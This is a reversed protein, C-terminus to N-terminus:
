ILSKRLSETYVCLKKGILSEQVPSELIKKTKIYDWPVIARIYFEAKNKVIENHPVYVFVCIDNKNGNQIIWDEGGFGTKNSIQFMYSEPVGVGRIGKSMTKRNASKVHIRLEDFKEELFVANHYVIDADWSKYNNDYINTDPNVHDLGYKDSLFQAVAFEACKYGWFIFPDFQSKGGRNLSYWEADKKVREIAYEECKKSIESNLTIKSEDTNKYFLIPNM